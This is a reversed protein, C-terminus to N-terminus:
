QYSYRYQLLFSLNIDTLLIKLSIFDRAPFCLSSVFFLTPFLTFFAHITIEILLYIGQSYSWLGLIDKLFILSELLLKSLQTHLDKAPTFIGITREREKTMKETLTKGAIKASKSIHHKIKLQLNKPLPSNTHLLGGLFQPSWSHPWKKYVSKITEEFEKTNFYNKGVGKGKATRKEMVKKASLNPKLDNPSPINSM